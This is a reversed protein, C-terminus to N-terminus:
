SPHIENLEISFPPFLFKSHEKIRDAFVDVTEPFMKIYSPITNM